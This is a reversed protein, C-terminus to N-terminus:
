TRSCVAWACRWGGLLLSQWRPACVGGGPWGRPLAGLWLGTAQTPPRRWRPSSARCPLLCGGSAKVALRALLGGALEPPLLAFLHPPLPTPLRGLRSPALGPGVVDVLLEHRGQRGRGGLDAPPLHMFPFHAKPGNRLIKTISHFCLHKFTIKHGHIFL